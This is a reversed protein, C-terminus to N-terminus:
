IDKKSYDQTSGLIIHVVSVPSKGQGLPFDNVTVSLIESENRWAAYVPKGLKETLPDVLKGYKDTLADVVQRYAWEKGGEAEVSYTLMILKGNRFSASLGEWCNHGDGVRSEIQDCDADALAPLAFSIDKHLACGEEGWEAQRAPENKECRVSPHIKKFSELSEGLTEGKLDFHKPTQAESLCAFVVCGVALVM